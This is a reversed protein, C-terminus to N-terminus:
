HWNFHQKMPQKGSSVGALYGEHVEGTCVLAAIEANKKAEVLLYTSLRIRPDNM